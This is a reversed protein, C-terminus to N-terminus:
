NSLKDVSKYEKVMRYLPDLEEVNELEFDDSLWDIWEEHAVDADRVLERAEEESEAEVQFTEAVICNRWFTYKKM